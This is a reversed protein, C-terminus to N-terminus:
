FKHSIFNHIRDFVTPVCLTFFVIMLFEFSLYWLIQEGIISLIIPYTITLITHQSHKKYLKIYGYLFGFCMTIISIYNNPKYNNFKYYAIIISLFGASLMFISDNLICYTINELDFSITM